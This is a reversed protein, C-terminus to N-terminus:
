LIKPARVAPDTADAARAVTWAQPAHKDTPDAALREALVLISHHELRGPVSCEPQYWQRDAHVANEV